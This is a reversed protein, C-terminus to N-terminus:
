AREQRMRLAALVAKKVDGPKRVLGHEANEGLAFTFADLWDGKRVECPVEELGAEKAVAYRHFGGPMWYRQDDLFVPIPHSRLVRGIGAERLRALNVRDLGDERMQFAPDTRLETLPILRVPVSM